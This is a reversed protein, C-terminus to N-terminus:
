MEGGLSLDVFMAKSRRIAVWITQAMRVMAALEGERKGSDAQSLLLWDGM